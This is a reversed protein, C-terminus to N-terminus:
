LIQKDKFSFFKGKENIILHDIIEIGMIKGAEVFRKTLTLDDESPEVDDSPHNHLMIICATSSAIAPKFIDRPHCLCADLTGSHILEIKIIVNRSNLYVGWFHEKMRDDEQEAKLVKILIDAIKEPSKIPQKRLKESVTIKM